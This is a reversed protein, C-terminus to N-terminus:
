CRRSARWLTHERSIAEESEAVFSAWDENTAADKVRAEIMGLEHHAVAYASAVSGHQRTELWAVGTAVLAAALGALDLNVTGAAQLLCAVAGALELLILAISWRQLGSENERARQGYWSKQDVIRGSRYAERRESLPSARLQRMADTIQQGAPDDPVLHTGPLVRVVEHLQDVLGRDVDGATVAFPDGGVAYRWALSKVSEAAARGDYWIREPRTSRLFVEVFTAALFAAMGFWALWQVNGGHAATAGVAAAVLVLGLRVRTATLYRVQARQSQTDAARYLAPYDQTTLVPVEALAVV